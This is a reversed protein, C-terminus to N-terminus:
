RYLARTTWGHFVSNSLGNRSWWYKGSHRMEIFEPHVDVVPELSELVEYVAQHFEPEGPNRKVVKEMLATLYPNKFSM